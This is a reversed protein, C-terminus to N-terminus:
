AGSEMQGRLDGESVVRIGMESESDPALAVQGPCHLYRTVGEVVEGQNVSWQLGWDTPSIAERKLIESRWGPTHDASDWSRGEVRKVTSPRGSCM